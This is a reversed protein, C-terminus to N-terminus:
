NQVSKKVWISFHQQITIFDLLTEYFIEDHLGKTSVKSPMANFSQFNLGWKKLNLGHGDMAGSSLFCNRHRFIIKVSFYCFKVM